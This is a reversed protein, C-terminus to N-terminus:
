TISLTGARIVQQSTASLDATGGNLLVGTVNTVGASASYAIQALRSYPLAAGIQLATIYAQLAAQVAAVVASHTYGAATTLVMTVNATVLTPGFVGFTSTVPRVADIANSVTTLFTGSPAGSGDDVVVYFYGPQAAGAYNFNETISYNIGQQVSLVANAIAAKTAKSLSAIYSVFRARFAADSEADAGNTFNAGNTVSDVGAIAQGLTNLAGALVNAAAAAKVSTVTATISATAGPLIYANSGANYAAQNTDAVVTFKQSGDATQVVSGVPVSAQATATFRSFTVQGTAAQAGLRTFGYDAAWSDADTGNSTSFRTLSAIQLALGQLWIAIAAFAEVVSRLVSGITTDLLQSSAGQIATVADSVITAFTKTSIAM